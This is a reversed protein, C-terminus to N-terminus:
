KLDGARGGEALRDRLHNLFQADPIVESREDRKLDAGLEDLTDDISKVVVERATRNGDHQLAAVNRELEIKKVEAGTESCSVFWGLIKNGQLSSYEPERLYGRVSDGVATLAHREGEGLPREFERRKEGFDIIGSM